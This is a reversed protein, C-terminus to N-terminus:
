AKSFKFAPVGAWHGQEFLEAEYPIQKFEPITGTQVAMKDGFTAAKHALAAGCVSCFIRTVPKGSGGPYTYEKTPGTIEVDSQLPLINSSFATGSTKHCDGCSCAIQTKHESKVTVKCSSCLCIGTHSM